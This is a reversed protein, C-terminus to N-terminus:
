SRASGLAETGRVRDEGGANEGGNYAIQTLANHNKLKAILKVQARSAVNSCCHARRYM